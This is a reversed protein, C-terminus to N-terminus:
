PLRYALLPATQGGGSTALVIYQQGNVEYTMPSGTQPATMHVAGREEGTAKDYARLMAGGEGGESTYYGTEGAIILNKTVLTGVRGPWGTRGIDAGELLPHNRINDPAEGHPIQWAIDGTNMNIATIRGWPPKIMPFGDIRTSADRFSVGEPRGRIYDM